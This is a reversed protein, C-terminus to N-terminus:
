IHILSLFRDLELVESPQYGMSTAVEKRIPTAFKCVAILEDGLYAGYIVKASRGFQAYHFSNLFNEPISYFSNAQKEKVSLETLVVDKFQFKFQKIQIDGDIANLIKQSIFEPNIFDREWLYIIQCDPAYKNLYTHKAADLSKKKSSSHWYEGQCEIFLNHDPLYFDFNYNGMQKESIFEISLSQLILETKVELNSRILNMRERARAMKQKYEPNQWRLQAIRKQNERYEPNQWQLRSQQQKLEKYTPDKWADKVFNSVKNRLQDSSFIQQLKKSHQQRKEPDDWARQNSQVQQNRYQLDNWLILSSLSQKKRYESNMWLSLSIQSARQRSEPNRWYLLSQEKARQRKEPDDWARQNSQVQQNKYEDKKWLDITIQSKRRRYEPKTWTQKSIVSQRARREETWTNKVIESQRERKEKTWMKISRDQNKERLINSQWQQKAKESILRQFEIGKWLRDRICM